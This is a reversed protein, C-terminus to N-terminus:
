LHEYMRMMYFKANLANCVLVALEETECSAVLDGDKDVVETHNYYYLKYPGNM